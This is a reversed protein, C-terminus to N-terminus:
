PIETVLIFGVNLLFPARGTNAGRQFPIFDNRFLAFTTTETGPDARHLCNGADAFLRIKNVLLDAALAAEAQALARKPCYHHFLGTARCLCPARM